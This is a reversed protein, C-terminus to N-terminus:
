VISKGIVRGMESKQDLFPLDCDEYLPFPMQLQYAPTNVPLSQLQLELVDPANPHNHFNQHLGEQEELM